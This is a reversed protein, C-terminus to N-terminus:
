VYRHLIEALVMKQRVTQKECCCVFLYSLVDTEAAAVKKTVASRPTWRAAEWRGSRPRGAIQCTPNHRPRRPASIVDRRWFQHLRSAESADSDRGGVICLPSVILRRSGSVFCGATLFASSHSATTM